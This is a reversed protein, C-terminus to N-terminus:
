LSELLDLGKCKEFERIALDGGMALALDLVAFCKKISTESKSKSLCEIIATLLQRLRDGSLVFSHTLEQENGQQKARSLLSKVCILSETCYKGTGAVGRLIIEPWTHQNM